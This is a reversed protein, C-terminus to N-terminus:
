KVEVAASCGHDCSAASRQKTILVLVRPARPTQFMVVEGVGIRLGRNGELELKNFIVKCFFLM